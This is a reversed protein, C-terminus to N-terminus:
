SRPGFIRSGIRVMNAGEEIAIKYSDTMGMSLYQMKICPLNLGKVSEFLKRTLRFYPRYGEAENALPGMTMLGKVQIHKYDPLQKVFDILDNPMVGAKQKEEGSNVEILVPMIKGAKGCELDLISALELSDLTEVMDFLKVARKVKNRQLHGIFHWRARSGVAPWVAEAENVYNQGIIKVGADVAELIETAPRTKAAAVLEVGPPLEELLAKVRDSINM